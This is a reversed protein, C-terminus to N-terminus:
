QLRAALDSALVDAKEALSRAGGLDTNRM